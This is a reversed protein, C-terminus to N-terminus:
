KEITSTCKNIQNGYEIKDLKSLNILVKREQSIFSDKGLFEKKLNNLESLSSSDSIALKLSAIISELNAKPM